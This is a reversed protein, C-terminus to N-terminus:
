LMKKLEQIESNYFDPYIVLWFIKDRKIMEYYVYTGEINEYWTYIGSIKAYHNNMYSTIDYDFSNPYCMCYYKCVNDSNLVYIGTRADKFSISMVNDEQSISSVNSGYRENVDNRIYYSTQGIYGQALAVFSVMM